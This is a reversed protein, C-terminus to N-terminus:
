ELPVGQVVLQDVYWYGEIESLEVGVPVDGDPTALTGDLVATEGDITANLFTASTHQALHPLRQVEQQLRAADHGRQYEASTRQLASQWSSARVDALFGQAADRAPAPVIAYCAISTACMTVLSLAGCGVGAIRAARSM